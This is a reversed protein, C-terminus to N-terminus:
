TVSAKQSAKEAIYRAIDEIGEGTKACTFFVEAKANRKRLNAVAKDREFDFVPAVDLKTVAVASAVEFMLPYKLPKDDGEPLSM